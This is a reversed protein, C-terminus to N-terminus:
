TYTVFNTSMPRGTITYYKTPTQMPHTVLTPRGYSVGNPSVYVTTGLIVTNRL